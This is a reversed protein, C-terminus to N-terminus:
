AHLGFTVPPQDPRPLDPSMDYATWALLDALHQEVFPLVEEVTVDRGLEASLTTVGADAIGCPVIADFGDMANDCNLALGHMTVGRSVRVGLAAIKREPRGDDSAAVWVGSRGKVRGTPLGLDACVRILAEELRRVYDVVYVHSPSSSSPTASWNAPDTGPSRAAATSRSWPRATSPVTPPSPASAPRTSRPISSSSSSTASRTRWGSNTCGASCTGPRTTRSRRTM